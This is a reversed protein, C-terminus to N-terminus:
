RKGNVKEKSTEKKTEEKVWPGFESDVVVGPLTMQKPRQAPKRTCAPAFTQMNGDPLVAVRHVGCACIGAVNWRHKV